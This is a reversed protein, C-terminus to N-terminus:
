NRRSVSGVPKPLSIVAKLPTVGGTISMERALAGFDGCLSRLNAMGGGGAFRM